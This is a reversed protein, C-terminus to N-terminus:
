ALRHRLSRRSAEPTDPHFFRLGSSSASVDDVARGNATRMTAAWAPTSARYVSAPRGSSYGKSHSSGHIVDHRTILRRRDIASCPPMSRLGSRRRVVWWTRWDHAARNQSTGNLVPQCRAWWTSMPTGHRLRGRSCVSSTSAPHTVGGSTYGDYRARHRAGRAGGAGTPRYAPLAWAVLLWVSASSWLRRM